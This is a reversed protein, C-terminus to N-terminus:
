NGSDNHWLARYIKWSGDAQKKLIRLVKGSLYEPESEDNRVEGRYTGLEFAFDGSAESEVINLTLRVVRGIWAQAYVAVQDKPGIPSFTPPYIVCNEDFLKLFSQADRAIYAASQADRFAQLGDSAQVTM